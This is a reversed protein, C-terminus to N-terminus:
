ENRKKRTVARSLFHGLFGNGGGSAEVVICTGCHDVNEGGVVRRSGSRTIFDAEKKLGGYCVM